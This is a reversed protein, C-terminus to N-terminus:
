IMLSKWMMIPAGHRSPRRCRVFQETAQILNMRAASQLIAAIARNDKTIIGQRELPMLIDDSTFKNKTRAVELLQQAARKKWETDAHKYVLEIGFQKKQEVQDYISTQIM